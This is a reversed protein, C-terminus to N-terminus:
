IDTSNGSLMLRHDEETEGPLTFCALVAEKWVAELEFIIGANSAIYCICIFHATLFTFFCDYRVIHM